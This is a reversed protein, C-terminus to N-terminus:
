KLLSPKTIPGNVTTLRAPRAPNNVKGASMARSVSTGKGKVAQCMKAQSKILGLPGHHTKVGGYLGFLEDLEMFEKFTM